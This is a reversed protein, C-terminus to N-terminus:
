KLFAKIVRAKTNGNNSILINKVAASVIFTEAFNFILTKENDVTISVSSGEVLMMVWCVAEKKMELASNLDIREVDYFHAAHTPLHYLEWDVGSDLLVPKSILETQVHEGKRNFNLNKFAHEINIPRPKGDLDLRLWDYMKFTFIYPTASIELVLNDTGASHITGNPILFFDHKKSPLAQVYEEMEIEKGEKFSEELVAKFKLPDINEQFGLYVKADGKCDMIYYTEDQTINEGFEDRIYEVSPHCQISLNGGDFTDLFDFRIPFQIGYIEAHRGLIQRYELLMLFDFSIEILFGNHEFILGNEPTILEFSWAYNVEAQNLDPIHGKMWQGGWVGKEFWPKVRFVGATTKKISQKLHSFLMWNIENIGQADGILVIRNLIDQKHKNLVVWDVFYFQKYMQQPSQLDKMGLNYISGARMRYQIENKALDLYIMPHAGKVLGAGVGLIIIIKSEDPTGTIEQLSEIEYFDRLELNTKQGWVAGPDGLYPSVLENVQQVQKLYDDTFHIAVDYGLRNIEEMLRNKIDDWFVGIYGDILVIKQEVIWKCLSKYGNFIEGEALPHVPYIDYGDCPKDKNLKIPTTPQTGTRPSDGPGSTKSQYEQVSYAGKKIM